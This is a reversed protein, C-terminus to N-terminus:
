TEQQCHAPDFLKLSHGRHEPLAYFEFISPKEKCPGALAISGFGATVGDIKLMYIVTWGDRRHISDRV